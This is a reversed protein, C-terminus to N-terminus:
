VTFTVSRPENLPKLASQNDNIDTLLREKIFSEQQLQGLNSANLLSEKIRDTAIHKTAINKLDNEEETVSFVNFRQFFKSCTTKM